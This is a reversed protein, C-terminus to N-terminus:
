IPMKVKGQGANVAFEIMDILESRAQYLFGFISRDLLQDSIEASLLLGSEATSLTLRYRSPYQRVIDWLDTDSYARDLLIGYSFRIGEEAQEIVFRDTFPPLRKQWVRKGEAAEVVNWYPEFLEASEVFCKRYFQFLDM